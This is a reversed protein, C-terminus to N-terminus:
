RKPRYKITCAYYFGVALGKKSLRVQLVKLQQQVASRLQVLTRHEKELETVIQESCLKKPPKVAATSPGSVERYPGCGHGNHNFGSM